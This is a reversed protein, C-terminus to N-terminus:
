VSERETMALLRDAKQMLVFAQQLLLRTVRLRGRGAPAWRKEAAPPLMQAELKALRVELSRTM